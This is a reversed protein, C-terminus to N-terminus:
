AGAGRARWDDLLAGLTDELPTTARWGTDRAIKAPDGVFRPVDQPRRLAPDSRIPVPIRAHTRLVAIVESVSTGEGRCVNYAEGTRGHALLAVYAAAVDRVDLFDRVADVNGVRVARAGGAEAFAIQRAIASCVFAAEQGPGTHNFPRARVVDLGYARGWQAAALDAAAKTADYVSLPRLPADEGVPAGPPDLLGYVHGSTVALLRARPAHARVAGLVALMTGLNGRYAEAVDNEAAAPSSFGALHVVADPAVAAVVRATAAGDILDVTHLVVEPGLAARRIPAPPRRVTGHVEHGAALLAAVTPPGVFGGVGTVLVRM